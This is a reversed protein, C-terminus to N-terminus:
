KYLTVFKTTNRSSFILQYKNYIKTYRSSPIINVFFICFYNNRVFSPRDTPKTRTPRLTFPVSYSTPSTTTPSSTTPSPTTSSTTTPSPTSTTDANHSDVEDERDDFYGNPRTPPITTPLTTTPSTTTPSTTTPSVTTPSVTTPSSTTPSPTIPSATTTFVTTPHISTSTTPQISTPTKTTPKSITPSNTTPPNTTPSNTAPTIVPKTYYQCTTDSSISNCQTFSGSMTCASSYDQKCYLQINRLFTGTIEVDNLGEVAFIEIKKKVNIFSIGSIKTTKELSNDNDPCYIVQEDCAEDQDPDCNISLSTSHKAFIVVDKCADIGDSCTINCSANNPCTIVSHQCANPGNCEIICENDDDCHIQDDYCRNRGVCFFHSGYWADGKVTSLLLSSIYIISVVFKLLFISQM